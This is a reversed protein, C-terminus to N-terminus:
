IRRKQLPSEVSPTQNLRALHCVSLSSSMEDISCSAYSKILRHKNHEWDKNKIHWMTRHMKFKSNSKLSCVIFPMLQSMNLASQMQGNVEICRVTRLLFADHMADSRVCLFVREYIDQFQPTSLKKGLGRNAGRKDKHITAHEQTEGFLM